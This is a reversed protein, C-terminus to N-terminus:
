HAAGTRRARQKVHFAVDAPRWYNRSGQKIPQPILGRRILYGFGSRSVGLATRFEEAPILRAPASELRFPIEIKMAM